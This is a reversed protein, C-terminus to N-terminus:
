RLDDYIGRVWDHPPEPESGAATESPQRCLRDLAVSIALLIFALLVLLAPINDM